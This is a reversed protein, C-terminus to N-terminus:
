LLEVRATLDTLAAADGQQESLAKLLDDMASQVSPAVAPRMVAPAAPRTSNFLGKPATPTPTLAATDETPTLDSVDIHLHHCIELCRGVSTITSVNGLGNSRRYAAWDPHDGIRGRLVARLANAPLTQTM